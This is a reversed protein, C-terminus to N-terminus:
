KFMDMNPMDFKKYGPPVKFLDDKLSMEDVSLVEMSSTKEGDEIVDVKMPFYNGQLKQQWENQAEKDMPNMMMYFNGLEDTMWAEVLDGDEKFIWKECKYGNIEKTEGTRKIDDTKDSHKTDNKIMSRDLKYEMYMNQGPMLMTTKQDKLDYLIVGKNGDADMEMRLNNGKIFYDIDATEDGTIRMAVKGEFGTQAFVSVSLFFVIFIVQGHLNLKSLM